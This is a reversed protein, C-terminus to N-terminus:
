GDQAAHGPRAKGRQVTGRAARAPSGPRAPPAHLPARSPHDGASAHPRPPPALLGNTKGIRTPAGPGIQRQQPSAVAEAARAPAHSGALDVSWLAMVGYDAHSPVCIPMTLLM